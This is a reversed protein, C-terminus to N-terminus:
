LKTKLDTDAHSPNSKMDLTECLDYAVYFWKLKINTFFMKLRLALITTNYIIFLYKLFFFRYLM